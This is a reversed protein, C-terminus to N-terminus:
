KLFIEKYDLLGYQDHHDSIKIIEFPNEIDDISIKDMMQVDIDKDLLLSGSGNLTVGYYVLRAAAPSPNYFGMAFDQYALKQVKNGQEDMIKITVIGELEDSFCISTLSSYLSDSKAFLRNDFSIEETTSGSLTMTGTQKSDLTVHIMAERPFEDGFEYWIDTDMIEGEYLLNSYRSIEVYNNFKGVIKSM